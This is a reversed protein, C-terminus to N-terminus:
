KKDNEFRTECKKLLQLLQSFLLNVFSALGLKMRISILFTIKLSSVFGTSNETPQPLSLDIFRVESGSIVLNKETIRKAQVM